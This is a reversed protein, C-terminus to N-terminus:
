FFKQKSRKIREHDTTHRTNIMLDMLHLTKICCPKSHYQRMTVTHSTCQHLLDTTDLDLETKHLKPLTVHTVTSVERKKTNMKDLVLTCHIVDSLNSVQKHTSLLFSTPMSPSSFTSSNLLLKTSTLTNSWQTSSIIYLSKDLLTYSM